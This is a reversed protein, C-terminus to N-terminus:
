FVHSVGVSVVHRVWAGERDDRAYGLNLGWDGVFDFGTGAFVTFTSVTRTAGAFSETEPADAIGITFRADPRLPGLAPSGTLADGRLMWGTIAKGGNERIHSARTSVAWGRGWEMRAGPLLGTFSAADYVEHRGGATLWVALQTGAPDRVAWARWEGDAALRWAPRFTADPSWGAAFAGRLSPLFERTAGAEFAWDTLGYRAYREVRAHVMAAGAKEVGPSELRRALQIFQGNWDEPARRTFTSYDGGADVRWVPRRGPPAGAARAREVLRLGERADANGTDVALLARFAVTAEAHRGEYYRLYARALTVETQAPDEHELANLATDAAAYLGQWSFIRARLLRPEFAGPNEALASDVAALAEAHRGARAEHHALDIWEAARKTAHAAFAALVVLSMGLVVRRARM